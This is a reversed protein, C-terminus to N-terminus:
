IGTFGPPLNRHRIRIQNRLNQNLWRRVGMYPNRSSKRIPTITIRPKPITSKLNTIASRTRSRRRCLGIQLFENCFSLFLVSSLSLFSLLPQNLSLGLSRGKKDLNEKKETPHIRISTLNPSSNSNPKLLTRDLTPCIDHRNPM